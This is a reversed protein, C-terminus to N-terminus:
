IKSTKRYNELHSKRAWKEDVGKQYKRHEKTYKWHLFIVGAILM